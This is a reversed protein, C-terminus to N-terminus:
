RCWEKIAAAVDALVKAHEDDDLIVREGGEDKTYIFAANRYKEQQERAERCKTERAQKEALAAEREAKKEARETAFADLMRATREHRTSIAPDAVPTRRLRIPEGTAGAPPRDGYHMNGADDVWKYVSDAAVPSAVLLLMAGAIPILSNRPSFTTM